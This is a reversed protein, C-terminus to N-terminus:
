FLDDAKAQKAAWLSELRKAEKSGGGKPPPKPPPKPPEKKESVVPEPEPLTALLEHLVALCEARGADTPSSQCAEIAREINGRNPVGGNIYNIRNGTGYRYHAHGGDRHLHNAAPDGEFEGGQGAVRRWLQVVSGTESKHQIVTEMQRTRAYSAQARNDQLVMKRQRVGKNQEAQQQQKQFFLEAM